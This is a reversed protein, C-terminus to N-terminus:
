RKLFIDLEGVKLIGMALEVWGVLFSFIFVYEIPKEFTYSLILISMLNTPGISVQPVTGFFVYVISGM